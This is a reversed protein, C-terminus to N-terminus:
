EGEGGEEQDNMGLKDIVQKYLDKDFAELKDLEDNLKDDDDKNFYHEIITMHEQSGVTIPKREAAQKAPPSNKKQLQMQKLDLKRNELDFFRDALPTFTPMAESLFKLINNTPEAESLGEPEQTQMENITKQHQANEFTLQTIQAKLEAIQKNMQVASEWSLVSNAKEIITVPSSTIKKETEILEEASVRGKTIPYSHPNGSERINYTLLVFYVGDPYKDSKLRTQITQFQADLNTATKKYTNFPVIKEGQQNTLAAMKYGQDKVLTKLQAFTYPKM